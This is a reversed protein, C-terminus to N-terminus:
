HHLYEENIAFEELLYEAGESVLSSEDTQEGAGQVLSILSTIVSDLGHSQALLEESSAASKEASDVNTLTIAEIEAVKDNVSQIRHTQEISATKIEKIIHLVQNSKGEIAKLSKETDHAVMVGQDALGKANRIRSETNKAANASRQALSRVEEAVVAFGKGADGARAAEVAANLALLNTQFAIDDITKIIEATEDAAAKISAISRNLNEMHVAAFSCSQTVEHVLDDASVSSDANQKSMSAIESLAFSASDIAKAQDASSKALTQGSATFDAASESLQSSNRRLDYIIRKISSTIAKLSLSCILLILLGVGVYLLIGLKFEASRTQQVQLVKASIVSIQEDCLLKIDGIVQAINGKFGYSDSTRGGALLNELAEDVGRWHTSLAYKNISERRSESIALAPSQINAFMRAQTALLESMQAETPRTQSNIFPLMSLKLIAAYEMAQQFGSLTRINADIGAIASNRAILQQIAIFSDISSSFQAKIVQADRRLKVQERALSLNRESNDIFSLAKSSAGIQSRLFVISKDVKQQESNVAELGVLGGLYDIAVEREKQLFTVTKSIHALLAIQGYIQEVRKTEKWNDFAIMGQSLTFAVFPVLVLLFIKTNLKLDKKM